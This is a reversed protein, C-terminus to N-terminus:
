NGRRFIGFIWGLTKELSNIVIDIVSDGAQETLASNDKSEAKNSANDKSIVRFHYSSSPALDSIIVVHSTTLATDEMTKSSYNDGSVGLGYEVQSTSPEDTLWSVVLQGKADKGSGLISTEVTVGSVSPARTDFPTKISVAESTAENGHEDRGSITVNYEASDKLNAISLKHSTLFASSLSEKSNGGDKERYTIASSTKVNSDWTFEYTASSAEKVQIYKVNSVRPFTLTSFVYNDSSLVNGDTDTGTIKFNYNSSHDLNELKVTHTTVSSGSSDSITSGYSATKGYNVTSTSVTNTKWSVIASSLSIDTVEVESIAPADSTKFNANASYGITNSYDRDEDLSQTKFNYTTGPALGSITVTHATVSDLQGNSAGYDTTAGYQVFSSSARDTSWTITATNATTKTVTPGSVITPPSTYKGTPQLPNITTLPDSLEGFTTKTKVRYYYSKATDLGTDAYATASTEGINVWDSGNESREIVYSSFNSDQPNPAQWRTTIVWDSLGRNSSDTMSVGTVVKVNSQIVNISFNINAQQSWGVNGADDQTVTYFINSGNVLAAAFFPTCVDYTTGSISCSTFTSIATANGQSPATNIKYYYATATVGAPHDWGFRYQNVTQSSSESYDVTLNEPMPVITSLKFQQSQIAEQNGATDATRWYLTHTGSGVTDFMNLPGTYTSPSSFGADDWKYTTTGNGASPAPDSVTLTIDPSTNFYGNSGDPSAPDTSYSTAPGATDVFITVANSDPSESGTGNVARATLNTHDGDDLINAGYSANDFTFNGSGDSTTTAKLTANNYLRVTVSASAGTGSISPTNDNTPTTPASLTPTSALTTVSEYSGAYINDLYFTNASDANTITVIIQDIADKDANSVASLDWNVTQYNDASAVNPTVETITGGSDHIGVKINSGTRTTRLDFKLSAKDSLDLPSAITRTLTKNM